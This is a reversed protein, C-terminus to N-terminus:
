LAAIVLAPAIIDLHSFLDEIDAYRAARVVAGKSLRSSSQVSARQLRRQLSWMAPLYRSLVPTPLIPTRWQRWFYVIVAFMTGTHLVLLLTM